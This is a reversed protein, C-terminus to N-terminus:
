KLRSLIGDLEDVSNYSIILKGKGKTSHQIAVKAALKLGLADQLQRIDPDVGGGSSKKNGSSKGSQLRKVLAETQENWDLLVDAQAFPIYTLTM